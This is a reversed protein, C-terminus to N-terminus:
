RKWGGGTHYSRNYEYPELIEGSLSEINVCLEVWAHRCGHPDDTANCDLYYGEVARAKYGKKRLAMTLDSAFQNCDYVDPIYTHNAIEESLIEFDYRDCPECVCPVEIYETQNVYVTRNIYVIKTEKSYLIITILVALCIIIVIGHKM